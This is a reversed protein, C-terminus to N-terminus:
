SRHHERIIASIRELELHERDRRISPALPDRVLSRLKRAQDGLEAIDNDTYAVNRCKKPRCDTLDPTKRVGNEDRFAQCLATAPDFVCHM